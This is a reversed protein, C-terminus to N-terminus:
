LIFIIDDRKDFINSSVFGNSISLYFDLFPVETDSTNAKNLQLEPPYTQDVMEEFYPNDTNLLDDLYRSTSNFAENIDAQNDGSLSTM